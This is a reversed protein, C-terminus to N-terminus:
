YEEGKKGREWKVGEGGGLGVMEVVIVQAPIRLNYLFKEMDKQIQINNDDLETSLTLPNITIFILIFFSCRTYCLHNLQKKVIIFILISIFVTIFSYYFNFFNTYNYCFILFCFKLKFFYSCNTYYHFFFCYFCYFFLSLLLLVFFCLLLLLM